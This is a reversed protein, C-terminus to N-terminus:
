RGIGSKLTPSSLTQTSLTPSALPLPNIKNSHETMRQMHKDHNWELELALLLRGIMSDSPRSQVCRILAAIRTQWSKHEASRTTQTQVLIRFLCKCINAM